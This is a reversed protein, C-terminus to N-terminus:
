CKDTKTGWIYRGGLLRKPMNLLRPSKKRIAAHVHVSKVINKALAEINFKDCCFTHCTRRYIFKFIFNAIAYEFKTQIDHYGKNKVVTGKRLVALSLFWKM